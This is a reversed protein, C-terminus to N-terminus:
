RAGGTPEDTATNKRPVADPVLQVAHRAAEANSLHVTAGAAALAAAQRELGQPDGKTGTLSVVVALGRDGGRRLADSIAPALTAAPDPHSGHGLVVDLLLVGVCPDDAERLLREERLTPDIMPHPRGETLRDDGFDVMTHADGADWRGAGDVDLAWEPRLPINSRVEGLSEAAIVMAEDCLTGGVFLGRLAPASPRTSADTGWTPWTVAPLGLHEVVQGAATTLDPQGFGLLAWVVDVGLEDAEARLRAAVDADPPKSVVVVLDTSPDAALARLAQSASRGGVAASMDRGGIGLCHRVGIGAADLLAMLHQAGTGSAAVLSVRGPAVVNAFGVGVGSVVATGCDPGMVLVGRRAAEDKLAIEQEVPVNDSFVVVNSGATVADHAEVFASDGPVSVVVLPTGTSGGSAQAARELASATRRPPPDGGDLGASSATVTLASALEALARDRAADDLARLAVVLDNPGTGVPAPLGMGELVEINLPTGMAVQAATIGELAALRKSIQMLTVSDAYVGTRTEIHTTGTSM